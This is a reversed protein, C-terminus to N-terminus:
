EQLKVWCQPQQVYLKLINRLEEEATVGDTKLNDLVKKPIEMMCMKNKKILQFRYLLNNPLYFIRAIIVTNDIQRIREEVIKYSPIKDESVVPDDELNEEPQQDKMSEM